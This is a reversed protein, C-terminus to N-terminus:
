FCVKVTKTSAPRPQHLLEEEVSHTTTLTENVRSHLSTASTVDLPTQHFSHLVKDDLLYESVQLHNFQLYLCLVSAKCPGAEAQQWTELYAMAFTGYVGCRLLDYLCRPPVVYLINKSHLSTLVRLMRRLM